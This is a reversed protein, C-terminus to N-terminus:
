AHPPDEKLWCLFRHFEKLRGIPTLAYSYWLLTLGVILLLILVTMGAYGPYWNPSQAAIIMLILSIATTIVPHSSLPNDRATRVSTDVHRLSDDIGGYLGENIIQERFLCYRLYELKRRYYRLRDPQKSYFRDYTIRVSGFHAMVWMISIPIFFLTDVGNIDRSAMIAISIALCSLFVLVGIRALTPKGIYAPLLTRIWNWRYYVKYM